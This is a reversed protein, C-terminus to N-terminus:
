RKEVRLMWNSVFALNARRGPKKALIVFWYSRLSISKINGTGATQGCESMLLVVMEHKCAGASCSLLHEHGSLSLMILMIEISDKFCQNNECLCM